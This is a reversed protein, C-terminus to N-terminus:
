SINSSSAFSAARSSSRARVVRSRPTSSGSARVGIHPTGYWLASAYMARSMAFPYLTAMQSCISSGASALPSTSRSTMRM